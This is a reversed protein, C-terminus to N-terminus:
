KFLSSKKANKSIGEKSEFIEKGWWNLDNWNKSNALDLWSNEKNNGSWSWALFGYGLENCKVMITSHDVKCGLNNKGNNYNYGFEGVILPLGLDYAKQLDNRIKEPDNWSGYMHISFLINELTDHNLVEKGYVFFPDIKQGWGPADIVLTTKYGANRLIDIASFYSDRWYEDNVTHDGWENAINVLLYKEYKLLVEKVDDRIFYNTVELLKEVTPNGTADHLEIIPIMELEIVRNIVKELQKPKGKMEWVIRVTNSNLNAIYELSKYSHRPLWINPCNVGRIIFPNGNADILKTGSVTFNQSSINFINLTMLLAIFLYLKKKPDMTM